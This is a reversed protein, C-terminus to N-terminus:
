SLRSRAHRTKYTDAKVACVTFGCMAMAMLMRMTARIKKEGGLDCLPWQLNGMIRVYFAYWFAVNRVRCDSIAIFSKSSVLYLWSGLGLHRRTTSASPVQHWKGSAQTIERAIPGINHLKLAISM